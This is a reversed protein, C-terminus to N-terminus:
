MRKRQQRHACSRVQLTRKAKKAVRKDWLQRTIFILVSVALLNAVIAAGGGVMWADQYRLCPLM